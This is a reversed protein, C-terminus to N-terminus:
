FWRPDGIQNTRLDANSLTFNGNAPNAFGPNLTTFTGTDNKAGATTSATFNPANFYNNNAMTTITTATQNSYYGETNAIINKTFNIQHNALRIYLLRRTSGNSVNNFTNNSINLVSQQGPFNTSGGADMRFFDRALASNYVTNNQFTFTRTMGNRFDVFDGGNCEINYIINGRYTIAPILTKLNLYILGRVYNYIVCDEVVLNGYANDSAEDYVITQNGNLSGTGNLVLDKINLAANARVRFILGNIIPKDTPRAGRISISKNIIIDNNINYTGGLLALVAGPQAAAIVAALDDTPSVPTAGGLDLLTTFTATGRTKTGNMLKATYATEPVLGTIIARGATIEASTVTHVINGPTFMITTATEGPTWSLTVGRATVTALDVPAFIQEPDTTFSASIWKSDDVNAGLAKVRVAYTTEGSLGTVTYPLQTRTIGEISRVPSGSFDPNEFIEITYTEANFVPNWNLRVHTQNVVRADLGTPSFARDVNLTTIESLLDEKCASFAFLVSMLAGLIIIKNKKM